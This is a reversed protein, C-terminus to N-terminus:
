FAASRLSYVCQLERNKELATKGYLTLQCHFAFCHIIYSRRPCFLVPRRLHTMGAEFYPAILMFVKCLLVCVHIYLCCLLVEGVASPVSYSFSFCTCLPWIGGVYVCVWLHVTDVNKISKVREDWRDLASGGAEKDEKWEWLGARRQAGQPDRERREKLAWPDDPSDSDRGAQFLCVSLSLPLSLSSPVHGSSWREVQRQISHPCETQWLRQHPVTNYPPSVECSLMLTHLISPLSSFIISHEYIDKWSHIM